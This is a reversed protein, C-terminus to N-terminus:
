EGLLYTLLQANIFCLQAVDTNQYNCFHMKLAPRFEEDSLM